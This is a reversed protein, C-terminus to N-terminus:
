TFLVVLSIRQARFGEADNVEGRMVRSILPLLILPGILCVLFTMYPILYTSLM